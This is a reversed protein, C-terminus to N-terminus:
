KRDRSGGRGGGGTQNLEATETARIDAWDITVKGNYNKFQTNNEVKNFEKLYKNRYGVVM